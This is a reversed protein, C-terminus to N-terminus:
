SPMPPSAPLPAAGPAAASPGLADHPGADATAPKNAWAGAGELLEVQRPILYKDINARFSDGGEYLDQHKRIKAPNYVCHTRQLEELLITAPFGHAPAPASM